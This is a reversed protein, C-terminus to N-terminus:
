RINAHEEEVDCLFNYWELQSLNRNLQNNFKKDFYNLVHVPLSGDTFDFRIKNEHETIIEVGETKDCLLSSLNSFVIVVAKYLCHHNVIYGDIDIHQFVSNLDPDIRTATHLSISGFHYVPIGRDNVIRIADRDYTTGPLYTDQPTNLIDDETIM